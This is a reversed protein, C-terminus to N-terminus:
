SSVEVPLKKETIRRCFKPLPELQTLMARNPASPDASGCSHVPSAVDDQFQVMLRVSRLGHVTAIPSGSIIRNFPIRALVNSTEGGNLAV